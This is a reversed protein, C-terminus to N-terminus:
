RGKEQNPHGAEPHRYFPVRKRWLRFAHAYIGALVRWSQAGYNKLLGAQEAPSWPRRELAMGAAFLEEGHELNGIRVSLSGHHFGLQWRYRQDMSMFPSVHFAKDHETGLGGGDQTGGELLYWHREQWPTNSVEALVADPQEGGAPFHWYLVLPNFQLGFTRLQCLAFVRGDWEGGLAKVQSRVRELLGGEGPPGLDTQSFGVPRWRHGWLWHGATITEPEDLDVWAFWIPYQFAHEAPARRRHWLQGTYFAHEAM